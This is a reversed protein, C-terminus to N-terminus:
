REVTEFDTKMAILQTRSKDNQKGQDENSAKMKDWQAM